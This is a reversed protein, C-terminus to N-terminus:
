NNRWTWHKGETFGLYAKDAYFYSIFGMFGFFTYESHCMSPIM